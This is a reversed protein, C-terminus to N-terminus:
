AWPHPCDIAAHFHLTAFVRVETQVKGGSVLASVHACDSSPHLLVCGTGHPHVIGPPSTSGFVDMLM